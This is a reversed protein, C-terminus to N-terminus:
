MLLDSKDLVKSTPKTASWIEYIGDERVRSTSVVVVHVAVSVRGEVPEYTLEANGGYVQGGCLEGWYKGFFSEELINLEFRQAPIFASLGLAM